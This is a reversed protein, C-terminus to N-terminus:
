GNMGRRLRAILATISHSSKATVIAPLVGLAALEGASDSEGDPGCADVDPQFERLAPKVDTQNFVIVQDVSALAAVLVARAAAVYRLTGAHLMDFVGRAFVIKRGRRRYEELVEHLGARSLIKECTDM